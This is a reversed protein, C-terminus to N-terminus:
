NLTSDIAVLSLAGKTELDTLLAKGILQAKFKRGEHTLHALDIFQDSKGTMLTDLDVLLLGGADLNRMIDNCQDINAKGFFYASKEDTSHPMTTLVVQYGSNRAHSIINRSNREFPLLEETNSYNLETRERETLTTSKALYGWPPTRDMKVIIYRYVLSIRMLYRDWIVPEKYYSYVHSYDPRFHDPPVNRVGEENWGHHLVIYDPDFAVVNMYYNVMTHASTWGSIGFNLVEVPQKHYASDLFTQLHEPYGRATTSGGLTAIRVTGEPKSYSVELGNFGYKNYHYIPPINESGDLNVSPRRTHGLFPHGMFASYEDYTQLQAISLLHMSGPHMFLVASLRFALELYILIILGFTIMGLQAKLKNRFIIALSGFSTLGFALLTLQQAEQNLLASVAFAANFIAPILLLGLCILLLGLVLNFRNTFSQM